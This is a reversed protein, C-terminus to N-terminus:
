QKATLDKKVSPVVAKGPLKLAFKSTSRVLGDKDLYFEGGYPDVPIELLIGKSVLEGLDNPDSHYRLRYMQIGEEIKRISLLATKRREYITRTKLDKAGKIMTELFNLALANEGAEHFYRSALNTFLSDGSREAAVQFYRAALPYDKLFYSANFGAYYPLNYDWARYKMGYELLHIVEQIRGVEWTFTAQAFYYADQNYPDLQVAGELCKYISYYEPRKLVMRPDDEFFAGFYFMARVVMQHAISARHERAVSRVVDVLPTMALKLVVPRNRLNDAQALTVLVLSLVVIIIAFFRMM